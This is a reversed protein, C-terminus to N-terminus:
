EQEDDECEMETLEWELWLLLLEGDQGEGGVEVDQLLLEENLEIDELEDDM